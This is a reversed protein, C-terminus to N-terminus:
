LRTKRTLPSEYSAEYLVEKADTKNSKAILPSELLVLAFLTEYLGEYSAESVLFVLSLKIKKCILM